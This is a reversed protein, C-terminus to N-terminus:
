ICVWRLSSEYQDMEDTLNMIKPQFNLCYGFQTSVLRWVNACPKGMFRCFEVKLHSRTVKESGSECSAEVRFHAQKKIMFIRGKIFENYPISKMVTKLESPLSAEKRKNNQYGTYLHFVNDLPLKPYFHAVKKVKWHKETSWLLVKWLVYSSVM